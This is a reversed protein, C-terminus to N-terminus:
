EGFVHVLYVKGNNVGYGVWVKKWSSLLINNRHVGSEELGDQLTLDSVTGYGINEGLSGEIPLGLRESLADIYNGDPDQHAQYNRNIMDDVKAQALLSLTDDLVVSSRGVKKRVENISELTDSRVITGNKRITRIQIDSLPEIIPWINGRNMPINVYAIGNQQVLELIYSWEVSLPIKIQVSSGQKLLSDSGVLASDFKYEKVDGNPLILYYNSRLFIDKPTVFRINAINNRIVATVKESGITEHKRDLIISWSYINTVRANRDLPSPTSLTYWKIRAIAPWVPLSFNKFLLTRGQTSFSQGKSEITIEGYINEPLSIIPGDSTSMIKPTARFKEIPLSPYSLMDPDMLSITAYSDTNFSKGRAIVFTYNGVKKPLQIRATFRGDKGVKVLSSEKIDSNDQNSFYVIIYDSPISVKWQIELGQGIFLISPITSTLSVDLHSFINKPLFKKVQDTSAQGIDTVEVTDIRGLSPSAFLSFSERSLDIINPYRSCNPRDNAKVVVGTGWRAVYLFRWLPIDCVAASFWKQDFIDGNATYAGDFADSYFTAEKTLPLALTEHSVLFFVPIWFLFCLYPFKRLLTYLM